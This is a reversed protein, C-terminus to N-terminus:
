DKSMVLGYQGEVKSLLGRLLHTKIQSIVVMSTFVPPEEKFLTTRHGPLVCTTGTTSVWHMMPPSRIGRMVLYPCLSKSTLGRAFPRLLTM